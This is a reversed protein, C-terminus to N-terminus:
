GGIKVELGMKEFGGRIRELHVKGPSPVDTMKFEKGLRAYKGRAITHYPLLHIKKISPGLKTILQCIGSINEQTDTIGPIVPFRLIVPRGEKLLIKLNRLITKNSQGTYQIHRTEGALKIDFLFLDTLPSIEKVIKEEAFGCTDVTTHINKKRCEALIEKLFQPQLLPEGGSFTVGGGSEEYFIRDRLIEEVVEEPSMYKGTIEESTYQIGDLVIHKETREPDPLRSEPNHCWLCEMPCGKFFVTTRIGPGDHVSFRRIDFILGKNV